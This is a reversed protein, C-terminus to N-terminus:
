EPEHDEEERLTGTTESLLILEYAKRLPAPSLTKLAAELPADIGERFFIDLRELIEPALPRATLAAVLADDTPRFSPVPEASAAPAAAGWDRTNLVDKAELWGRRAVHVALSRRSLEAPSGAGSALAIPVRMERAYRCATADLDLRSPDGLLELAVEHKRAAKLLKEFDLDSPDREGLIRNTPHALCDVAGTEFAKVLRATIKARPQDFGDRVSAVVWEFDRLRAPDVDLSGDDRIPVDIGAIVRLGPVADRLAGLREREKEIGDPLAAADNAMVMWHLGAAKAARALALAAPSGAGGGVRVRADGIVATEEVLAPLRGKEAAEIEGTNERLEPPIFPLGVMDFLEDETACARVLSEDARLFVGHESIKLRRRNGRARLYINHHQSGTFYHLGAGYAQPEICRLDVQQGSKVLASCKSEGRVLVEDIPELVVFRSIVALPDRTAVLIDLDGITEKKRRASGTLTVQMAAGCDERLTEVMAGGLAIAEPLLLRGVKRRYRAIALLVREQADDGFGPLGHLKGARAALELEEVSGIRMSAYLHRVTKVGIGKVDLLDRLGTPLAATLHKHDGCTGTRLIEKIRGVAGEGIGPVNGLTGHRIMSAAPERLNELVRAIRRFARARYRDGGQIDM